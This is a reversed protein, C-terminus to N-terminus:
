TSWFCSESNLPSYLLPLFHECICMSKHQILTGIAGHVICKPKGTTGSSYLIYIPHDPALMSFKLSTDASACALFSAYTLPKGSPVSIVTLDFPHDKITEFVVVVRLTQLEKAIDRLKNHVDHTKGNYMVGNDAFLLVPAIQLIRDLVAHVGTDPSIATWLAGISTASLMAVLANTHNAVFGAVRDGEKVGTSRMASACQRVKERLEKWTVFSRNEETAEIVALSDEKPNCAPFLLNEAFNLKAGEFFAPRPFM